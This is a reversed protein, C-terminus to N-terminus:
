HLRELPVDVLSFPRQPATKDDHHNFQANVVMLSSGAKAATAPWIFAADKLRHVVRGKALGPQLAVTVIEGAWQRDVYLLNGDLTLGDAGTLDAGAVDILTIKRTAIDIRFLAGKNMQVVILAKGDPTAAIGNLNPGKAFAIPTGRLDIWREMRGLGAGHKSVRWLIPVFTDTVYAADGVLILDNLLTEPPSDTKARDLVRHHAPDVLTVLGTRGGAIWLLGQADLKMGLMAPFRGGRPVIQGKPIVQGVKGTVANVRVLTGDVASGAFLDRSVPDYATGEPYTVNAPLPVHRLAPPAGIATAPLLGAGWILGLALFRSAMTEGIQRNQNTFDQGDRAILGDLSVALLKRGFVSRELVWARFLALVVWAGHGPPMRM